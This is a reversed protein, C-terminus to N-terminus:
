NSNEMYNVILDEISANQYAEDLALRQRPRGVGVKESHPTIIGARELQQKHKSVTGQSRLSAAEAWKVVDHLQLEHRAGVLLGIIIPDPRRGPSIDELAAYGTGIDDSVSPGFIQEALTLLKSYAPAEISKSVACDWKPQYSDWLRQCAYEDDIEIVVAEDEDTFGLVNVARNQNLLLTSTDSKTTSTTRISIQGTAVFDSIKAATLFDHKLRKLTSPRTLLEIKLGERSRNLLIDVSRGLFEIDDSRIRWHEISTDLLYEHVSEKYSQISIHDM